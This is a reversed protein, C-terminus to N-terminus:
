LYTIGFDVVVKEEKDKAIKVTKLNIKNSVRGITIVDKFLRANRPIKGIIEEAKDEKSKEAAERKKIRATLAEYSENNSSTDSLEFRLVNRIESTDAIDGIDFGLFPKTKTYALEMLAEKASSRTNGSQVVLLYDGEPIDKLSFNGQVDCKTKIVPRTTDSSYLFVESGADPKNGIFDNYKWYVNGALSGKPKECSAFLACIIILCILRKM